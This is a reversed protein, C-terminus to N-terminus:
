NGREASADRPLWIRKRNVFKRSQSFRSRAAIRPRMTASERDGTRSIEIRSALLKPCFDCFFIIKTLAPRDPCTSTEGIHCLKGCIPEVDASFAQWSFLFRNLNYNDNYKSCALLEFKLTYGIMMAFVQRYAGLLFNEPSCLAVEDEM